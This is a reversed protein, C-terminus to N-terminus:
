KIFNKRSNYKNFAVYIDEGKLKIEPIFVLTETQAKPMFNKLKELPAIVEPNRPSSAEGVMAMTPQTALGGKALAPLPTSAIIAIQAAGMAAVLAGLVIGAVGTQGITQMIGQATNVVASMIAMAKERAAQRRILQRRKKDIREESFNIYAEKKAQLETILKNKSVESRASNEIMAIQKDYNAVQMERRVMEQNEFEQLLISNKTLSAGWVDFFGQIVPTVTNYLDLFKGIVKDIGSQFKGLPDTGFKIARALDEQAKAAEKVTDKYEKLTDSSIKGAVAQQELLGHLTNIKTNLDEVESKATSSILSYSGTLQNVWKVSDGLKSFGTKLEGLKGGFNMLPKVKFANEIQYEVIAIENSIKEFEGTAGQPLKELEGHLEKLKLRLSELNVVMTNIAGGGAGADTEKFSGILLDYFDAVKKTSKALIKNASVISLANNVVDESSLNWSEAFKMVADLSEGAISTAFSEGAQFATIDWENIGRILDNFLPLIVSAMKGSSKIMRENAKKINDFAIQNAVALEEQKSKLAISQILKKNAFDQSASIEDLSMKETLLKPLYAGYVENIKAIAARRENLSSNNNKLVGFLTNLNTQESALSKTFGSHEDKVELLMKKEDRLIKIFYIIGAVVAAIGVAIATYPNALMSATLSLVAKQAAVFALSLKGVVLVLTSIGIAVAGSIVITKKQGETLSQMWGVLSKLKNIFPSLGEAIIKGFEESLDETINKLQTLRGLSTDAEAQVTSFMKALEEHAKAVKEAPDKVAKLAPIYRGLMGISGKSLASTLKVALEEDIGLAKSMGLAEKVVGKAADGSVGYSNALQLMRVVTQDAVTSTNQIEKAFAKYSPLISAVDGGQSRIAAALKSLAQEEDGFAKVSLGAMLLLPATIKLSMEKGVSEMSKGFKTFSRQQAYLSKSFKEVEVSSEQLAKKFQESKMGLVVFLSGVAKAM